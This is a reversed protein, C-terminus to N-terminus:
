AVKALKNAAIKAAMEAKYAEAALYADMVDSATYLAVFPIVPSLKGRAVWNEVRKLSVGPLHGASRLARVLQGLPARVHGAAKFRAQQYDLVDVTNGCTRCRGHSQGQVATIIDPCPEGNIVTGCKGVSIKDAARDTAARAANMARSLEDLLEYAWEVTRVKEIRSFLYSAVDETKVLILYTLGELQIAWGTLVERLQEYKDLADLNLPPRGGAPGGGGVSPAGKDQRAISVRLNAIVNDVEALDQEIRTTHDHCLKVNTEGTCAGCDSM